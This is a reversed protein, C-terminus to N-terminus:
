GHVAGLGALAGLALVVSCVLVARGHNQWWLVRHGFRRPVTAPEVHRAALLLLAVGVAAIAGVLALRTFLQELVAANDVYREM